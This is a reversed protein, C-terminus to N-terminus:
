AAVTRVVSLLEDVSWQDDAHKGYKAAMIIGNAAILFDAPLGLPGGNPFGSMPPKDKALKAKVITPWVAPNLLATISTSVGYREYIKKEPDGIVAFPFNGQYPLLEAASSHFVVVEMIGAEVIENIRAEFTKLHLNCVPCGAFRRFQLHVYPFAEDSIAIKNGQITEAQLRPFRDGQKLNKYM